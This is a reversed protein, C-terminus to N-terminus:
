KQHNLGKQAGHRRDLIVASFAMDEPTTVKINEYSGMVMRVVHGSREVISSDDTGQFGDSVAKEYAMKLVDLRFGQPTQANWYKSRDPTDVVDGSGDVVKLTDKSPVGVCISDHSELADIASRITDYSVLPRAGDHVLVYSCKYSDVAMIGNLVSDQREGGGWVIKVPKDFAYRSLIERMDDEDDQRIVLIFEAVEEFNAFAEMSRIVVPIGSLDLFVKNMESKMRKGVGACPLIVSIKDRAM